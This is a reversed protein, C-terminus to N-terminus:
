SRGGGPPCDTGVTTVASAKSELWSSRHAPFPYTHEVRGVSRTGWRRDCRSDQCDALATNCGEIRIVKLFVCGEARVWRGLTRHVLQQEILFPNECQAGSADM